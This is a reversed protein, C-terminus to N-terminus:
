IFSGLPWPPCDDYLNIQLVILHDYLVFVAARDAV